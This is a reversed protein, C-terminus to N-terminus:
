EESFAMMIYERERSSDLEVLLISQWIGLLLEGNIVPIVESTPFFLSRIHSHGNIRENVPVDRLNINNHCYEGVVPAVKELFSTVDLLSLIEKEMIKIGMTTHLSFVIIFGDIIKNASIFSKVENTIDTFTKDTTVKTRQTKM